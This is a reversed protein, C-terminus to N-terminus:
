MKIIQDSLFIENFSHISNKFNTQFNNCCIDVFELIDMPVQTSNQPLSGNTDTNYSALKIENQVIALDNELSKDIREMYKCCLKEIPENLQCLMLISENVSNNATDEINDYLTKKLRIIIVNCEGDINKFTPLHKYHDLTRRAKSFYLVAKPIQKKEIFENLKM